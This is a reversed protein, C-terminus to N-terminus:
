AKKKPRRSRKLMQLIHHHGHFYHFRRWQRASMPGLVKHMAVSGRGWRREASDLAADMRELSALTRQLVQEPTVEGTPLVVPQSQMGSPFLGLEAVVLRAILEKLTAPRVPPPAGSASVALEVMKATTGYTRGLHELIQASSWRGAPARRWDADSFELTARTIESRLRDLYADM